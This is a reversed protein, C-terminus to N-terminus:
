HVLRKAFVKKPKRCISVFIVFIFNSVFFCIMVMKCIFLKLKSRMSVLQKLSTPSDQVLEEVKELQSLTKIPLSIGQPPHTIPGKSGFHGGKVVQQLISTNLQVQKAITDVLINRLDEIETLFVEITLPTNFPPKSGPAILSKQLDKEKRYGVSAKGDSSQSLPLSVGASSKQLDKEKQSGKSARVDSSQSSPLSM